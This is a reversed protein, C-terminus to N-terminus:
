LKWLPVRTLTDQNIPNEEWLLLLTLQTLIFNRYENEEPVQGRYNEEKEKKLSATTNLLVQFNLIRIEKNNIDKNIKDKREDSVTLGLDSHFLSMSRIINILDYFSIGGNRQETRKFAVQLDIYQVRSLISWEKNLLEEFNVGSKRHKRAELM